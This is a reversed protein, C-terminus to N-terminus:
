RGALLSSLEAEMETISLDEFRRGESGERTIIGGDGELSTLRTLEKVRASLESVQKQLGPVKAAEGQSKQLAAQTEGLVRRGVIVAARYPGHPDSMIKPDARIVKRIEDFLPGSQMAEPLDQSLRAWTAAPGTTAMGAARESALKAQKELEDAQAQLRDSREYDGHSEADLQAQRKLRAQTEWEGAKAKYQAATFGHEDQAQEAQSRQQAEFQERELKFQDREAQIAAKEQNIQQWTKGRREQEQAWKSRNDKGQDQRSSETKPPEDAKEEKAPPKETPQSADPKEPNADDTDGAPDADPKDGEPEPRTFRGQEDRARDSPQEPTDDDLNTDRGQAKWEAADQAIQASLEPDIGQMETALETLDFAM